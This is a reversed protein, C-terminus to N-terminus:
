PRQPGPVAVLAHRGPAAAFADRPLFQRLGADHAPQPLEQWAVGERRCWAAVRKDRDWTWLPGTEEHSFLHTFAFARRLEDLVQPLPGHRVVLPLGRAALAARLPALCALAFAQHQPDFEPSALWGPEIVYLALAEDCAAAAALPAHDALRLDRKFWVLARTSM